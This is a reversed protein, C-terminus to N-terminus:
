HPRKGPPILFPDAHEVSGNSFLNQIEDKLLSDLESPDEYRDKKVRARIRDIVLSTTSVGVDGSLLIEEISDMLEDDIKSKGLLLKQVKVVLQERTKALGEKLRSLSFKEFFGM